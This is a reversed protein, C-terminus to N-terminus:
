PSTVLYFVIAATLAAILLVQIWERFGDDGQQAAPRRM